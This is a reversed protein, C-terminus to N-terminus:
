GPLKVDLEAAEGATIRWARVQPGTVDDLGLIAYVADPRDAQMRDHESLEPAMTPHSHFMLTVDWGEEEARQRVREQDEASIAHHIRPEDHVNELPLFERIVGPPGIGIGCSVRPKETFAFAQVREWLRYPIVLGPEGDEPEAPVLAGPGNWGYLAFLSDSISVNSWEIKPPEAKTTVETTATPTPKPENM